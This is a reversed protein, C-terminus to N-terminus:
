SGPARDRLGLLEVALRSIAGCIIFHSPENDRECFSVM